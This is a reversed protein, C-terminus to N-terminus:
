LGKLLQLFDDPELFDLKIVKWANGEKKFFIDFKVRETDLIFDLKQEEVRRGQGSATIQAKAEADSEIGVELEELTIFIDSYGRFVNKAILFLSGRNNGHRDEYDMSVFSICKLLDEKETAMKASLIINKIKEENSNLLPPIKIFLFILIVVVIVFIIKKDM